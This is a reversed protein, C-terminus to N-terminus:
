SGEQYSAGDPVITIPWPVGDPLAADPNARLSVRGYGSFPKMADDVGEGDGDEPGFFGITTNFADAEGGYFLPGEGEVPRYTSLIVGHVDVVGRLDLLGSIITGTLNVGISEDNQFAGIEVSWGPMLVSSRSLQERDVPDISDLVAKLAASDSQDDLDPDEPDLFFRSEGTIQVKNRWHTFESPADGAISGLFTCDHFRVNNSVERTSAYSVGDSEASLGDFQYEYGGAGDPQISGAFNWNPDSVEQTTEVWTVGVFTCDEFVANTGRPIRVNEFVMDTYVPRQYWDYAGESEYPVGEWQSLTAPTYTGGSAINSGVQGSAPNGFATGTMSESEFWTQANAFMSTSLEALKDDPLAFQASSSGFDSVISGAVDAQWQQGTAAEWDAISVAFGISGDVKAYHDKGDIIGDDWGLERDLSDTVGDGNRDSRANDILMALQMDGSFEQSMGPHGAYLAQAPDYVVAIDGNSDFRSLFLDMESIYQNGDYDQLAGGLGIGETPHSPRLRNDGDVDNALVLAAFASVTGDLTGPDLGYFDSRM